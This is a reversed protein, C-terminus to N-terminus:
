SSKSKTKCFGRTSYLLLENHDAITTDMPAWFLSCVMETPQQLREADGIFASRQICHGLPFDYGYVDVWAAYTTSTPDTGQWLKTRIGAMFKWGAFGQNRRQSKSLGREGGFDGKAM